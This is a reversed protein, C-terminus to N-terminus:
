RLSGAGQVSKMQGAQKRNQKAQGQPTWQGLGL